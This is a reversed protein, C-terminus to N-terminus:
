PAREECEVRIRHPVYMGISVVSLVYDLASRRLEFGRAPRENCVNRLDLSRGGFAGFVFEHVSVERVGTANPAACGGVFAVCAFCVKLARGFLM